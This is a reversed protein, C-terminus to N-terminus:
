RLLRSTLRWEYKEAEIVSALPISSTAKIGSTTEIQLADLLTSNPLTSGESTLKGWRGSRSMESLPFCVRSALIPWSGLSKDFGLGALTIFVIIRSNFVCSHQSFSVEKHPGM